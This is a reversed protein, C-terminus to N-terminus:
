RHQEYDPVINLDVGGCSVTGGRVLLHATRSRLVCVSWAACRTGLGLFQLHIALRRRACGLRDPLHLDGTKHQLENSSRAPTGRLVKSRPAFHKSGRELVNECAQRENHATSHRQSGKMKKVVVLQQVWHRVSTM